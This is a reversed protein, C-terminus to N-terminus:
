RDTYRLMVGFHWVMYGIMFGIVVAGALSPLLRDVHNTLMVAQVEASRSFFSFREIAAYWPKEILFVLLIGLGGGIGLALPRSYGMRNAFVLAGDLALGAVVLFTPIAAVQVTFGLADPKYPLGEYIALHSVLVPTMASTLERIGLVLLGTVIAAGPIRLVAAPIGLCLVFVAAAMLPYLSVPGLVTYETMSPSIPLAVFAVMIAATMMFGFGAPHWLGVDSRQRSRAVESAFSYLVGLLGIFGSIYLGIHPPSWLTVDFGYVHHWFEDFGGFFVFSVVGLGTVVFGVPARLVGLWPTTTDATVGPASRRYLLTTRILVGLAILGAFAVGVYMMTHPPTWFRDPGVDTHWHVDWAGGLYLVVWFFLVMATARLRFQSERLDADPATTRAALAATAV